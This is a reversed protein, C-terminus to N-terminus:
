PSDLARPLRVRVVDETRVRAAHVRPRPPSSTPRGGNKQADFVDLRSPGVRVADPAVVGSSTVVSYDALELARDADLDVFVVSSGGVRM